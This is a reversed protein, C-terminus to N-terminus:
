MFLSLKSSHVTVTVRKKLHFREKKRGEKEGEM